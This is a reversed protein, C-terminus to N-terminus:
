DFRCFLLSPFKLIVRFVNRRYGTVSFYAPKHDFPLGCRVNTVLSVEPRLFDEQKPKLKGDREQVTLTGGRSVRTDRDGACM